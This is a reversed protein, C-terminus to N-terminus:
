SPPRMLGLLYNILARALVFDVALRFLLVISQSWFAAPRIETFQLSYISPVDLFLCELTNDIGFAIWTFRNNGPPTNVYGAGVIFLTDRCILGFMVATGLVAVILLAIGTEVRLQPPTNSDSPTVPSLSVGLAIFLLLVYFTCHVALSAVPSQLFILAGDGLIVGLWMFSLAVVLSAGFSRFRLSLKM